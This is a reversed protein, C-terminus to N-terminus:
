TVGLTANSGTIRVFLRAMEAPPMGNDLARRIEREFRAAPGGSLKLRRRRQREAPNMPKDFIPRRPM